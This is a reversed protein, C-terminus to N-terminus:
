QYQNTTEMRRKNLCHYIADRVHEPFLPKSLFETAGATVAAQRNEDDSFATIVIVPLDAHTARIQRTMELGDMVPMSIDTLVLDYANNHFLDLGKKGDGAVDVRNLYRKLYYALSERAFDADEVYLINKTVLLSLDIDQIKM